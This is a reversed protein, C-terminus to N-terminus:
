FEPAMDPDAGSLVTDIQLMANMKLIIDEVASLGEIKEFTNGKISFSVPVSLRKTEEDYSPEIDVNGGSQTFADMAQKLHKTPKMNQFATYIGAFESVSIGHKKKLEMYQDDSLGPSIQYNNNKYKRGLELEMNDLYIAGMEIVVDEHKELLTQTM